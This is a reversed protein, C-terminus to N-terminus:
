RFHSPERPMSKAGAARSYSSGNNATLDPSLNVSPAYTVSKRKELVESGVAKSVTEADFVQSRWQPAPHPEGNLAANVRPPTTPASVAIQWTSVTGNVSPANTDYPLSLLEPAQQQKLVCMQDEFIKRQLLRQREHELRKLELRVLM